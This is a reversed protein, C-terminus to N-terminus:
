LFGGVDAWQGECMQRDVTFVLGVPAGFFEFNRRLLALKGGLDNRSVGVAGYLAKGCDRRRTRYPETLHPPYINYRDNAHVGM